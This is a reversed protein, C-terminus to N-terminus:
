AAPRARLQVRTGGPGRDITVDDCLRHVLWLGRGNERDPPPLHVPGEMVLGPGQDAVTVLVGSDHEIEVVAVGGGHQLANIVVENVAVTFRDVHDPDLGADRAAARVRRRVDGVEPVTVRWADPQSTRDKGVDGVDVQADPPGDNV